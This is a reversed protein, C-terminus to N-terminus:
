RLEYISLFRLLGPLWESLTTLRQFLLFSLLHAGTFVLSEEGQLRGARRPCLALSPVDQVCDNKESYSVHTQSELAEVGGTVGGDNGRSM